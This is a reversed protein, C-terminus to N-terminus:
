RDARRAAPTRSKAAKLKRKPFADGCTMCSTSAASAWTTQDAEPSRVALGPLDAFGSADLLDEGALALVEADEVHNREVLLVLRREDSQQLNLRCLSQEHEGGDV